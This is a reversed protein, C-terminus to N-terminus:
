RNLILPVLVKLETGGEKRAEILFRKAGHNKRTYVFQLIKPELHYKKLMMIIPVLSDARHILYFRGRKKLLYSCISVLGDMNVNIEHRALLQENKISPKGKGLPIYPPNATIVDFSEGQFRGYLNKMDDQIIHIKDNLKNLSINRKATNAMNEQIEVAYIINNLSPKYIMLPIIGCGTGLDIIKERNKVKVFKSLLISDLSFCYSNKDQIIKLQNKELSNIKEGPRLGIKQM